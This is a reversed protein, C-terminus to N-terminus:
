HRNAYTSWKWYLYQRLMGLIAVPNLYFDRVARRSVSLNERTQSPHKLPWSLITTKMDAVKTKTKTNTAASDFGINKILNVSPAISLGHHLFHTYSWQFDWTNIWGVKVMTLMTRWYWSLLKSFKLEQTLKQWSLPNFTNLKSDYLKWARAWTAWGWCQPYQSFDYSHEFNGGTSTGNVSMVIQDDKYKQLMESTFRFFDPTPLCDDELIIAADEKEFVCTLGGVINRKLGINRPSYSTILKIEKNALGFERISEKVRGTELKEAVNRPGDAFIYIKGIGADKMLELFRKTTAPRKFVFYIVPYNINM